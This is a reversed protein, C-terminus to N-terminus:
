VSDGNTRILDRYWDFSRKRVRRLDRPDSEDRNVYVLGYRKQYGNLWSLVDTFSWVCYGILDVGDTIAHRCQEVHSRLYAIRHEDDVTEDPNLVDFEGLGNETILIPLRYRSTMRRLGIRLGVPDIAWDWNSTAVHPNRTTRYLGPIGSHQGSGKQGTTNMMGESVGDLPNAEYTVTRYYNVGLFDPRGRQLLDLDGDEITPGVGREWLYRLAVQPYTGRCYVDMWWENTFTEANDCALVDDPRSTLSYAPSYAFSPGIRGTPVHQRFSEIARANALFAIHNAQYFRKRDKVGPPHLSTVFGQHTDYNQENLSVWYRVRDGFRRYLTVCYNDFDEIIRRSEWAGYEEMLAQPVDWHYLTLIPEIGHSLLEDILTGYFRLGAENVEGRGRPYVRPWSVSFRYAKLGLDAMLAVDEKFRHYHDVAVDGNSGKFTKGPIKTFVDWVSPGKGDANWAGEVQYAASAAGWLFGAPFASLRQHIM